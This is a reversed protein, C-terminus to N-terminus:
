RAPQMAFLFPRPYTVTQQGFAVTDYLEGQLETKRILSGLPILQHEDPNLFLSEECENLTRNSSPDADTFGVRFHNPLVQRLESTMTTLFFSKGSAPAGLISVFFPEMELMARPFPLHCHPCALNRCIM